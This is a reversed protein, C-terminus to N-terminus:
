WASNGSDTSIGRNRSSKGLDIVLAHIIEKRLPRVVAYEKRASAANDMRPFSDPAYLRRKRPSWACSRRLEECAARRRRQRRRERRRRRRCAPRCPRQLERRRLEPQQLERRQRRQEPRQRRQEPRQRRQWPEPRQRQRREPRQRQRQEPRESLKLVCRRKPFPRGEPRGKKKPYPCRFQGRPNIGSEHSLILGM